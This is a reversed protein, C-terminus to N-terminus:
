ASTRVCVGGSSISVRSRSSPTGASEKWTPRTAGASTGFYKFAESM